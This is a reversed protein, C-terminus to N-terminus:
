VEPARGIGEGPQELARRFERRDLFVLLGHIVGREQGQDLSLWMEVVGQGEQAGM